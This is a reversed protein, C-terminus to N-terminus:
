APTCPLDPRVDRCSWARFILRDQVRYGNLWPCTGIGTGTIGIRNLVHLSVQIFPVCGARSWPSSEVTSPAGHRQTSHCGPGCPACAGWFAASVLNPSKQLTYSEVSVAYELYKTSPFFQPRPAPFHPRPHPHSRSTGKAVPCPSLHLEAVSLTDGVISDGRKCLDAAPGRASPLGPMTRYTARRCM